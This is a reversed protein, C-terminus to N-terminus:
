FPADGKAEAKKVAKLANNETMFTWGQKFEGEVESFTGDDNKVMKKQKYGSIFVEAGKQAELNDPDAEINVSFLGNLVKAIGNRKSAAREADTRFYGKFEPYQSNSDRGCLTESIKFACYIQTGGFQSEKNEGVETLVAKYTGEYIPAEGATSKEVKFGAEKLAESISM